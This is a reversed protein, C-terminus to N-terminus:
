DYLGKMSDDTGLVPYADAQKYSNKATYFKSKLIM